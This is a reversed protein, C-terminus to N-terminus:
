KGCTLARAAPSKADLDLYARYAARAEQQRGQEWRVDGLNLHVLARHADLALALELARAADELHRQQLQFFALNNYAEALLRRESM